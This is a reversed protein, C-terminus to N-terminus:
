LFFFSAGRIAASVDQYRHATFNRDSGDESTSHSDGYNSSLRRGYRDQWDGSDEFSSQSDGYYDSDLGTGYREEMERAM